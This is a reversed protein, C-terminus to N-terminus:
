TAEEPTANPMRGMSSMFFPAWFYIAKKAEPTRLHNCIAAQLAQEPRAGGALQRHLEPLITAASDDDVAWLAGIVSRVGAQFLVAQLGFLDDGPLESAGPLALARQGSHCASMVVLDARLPLEALSLAELDGDAFCLRSAFPDGQLEAEYVSEGHTALHLCRCAAWDLGTFATRTAQTGILATAAHGRASWAAVVAEAEAEAENLPPLGRGFNNIGVAVTAGAEVGHWPLLLSGLNPVYRISAREILFRGDFRAAHLPLLHLARHPSFVLRQAEAIFARTATPLIAEAVQQVNMQMSNRPMRGSCVQEVHCSLAEKQGDTLIVREAHVRGRDLALVVLVGKAVWVWSVLAEDAALAAQVEALTLAPLGKGAASRMRTIALLSWLRRRHERLADSQEPAAAEIASTAQAVQLALETASQDPPDALRGRLAARSKFLDMVELLSDWRELKFASFAALEYFQTRDALYSGQQFPDSIRYRDAEIARIAGESLDLVREVAKAEAAIRCRCARLMLFVDFLSCDVWRQSAAGGQLLVAEGAEAAADAGELDGCRQRLVAQVRRAQAIPGPQGFREAAAVLADAQGRAEAPPEAADQAIADLATILPMLDLLADLRSDDPGQPAPRLEMTPRLGAEIEAMVPASQALLLRLAAQVQTLTGEIAQAQAPDAKITATHRALLIRMAQDGVRQLLALVANGSRRAAAADVWGAMAAAIPLPGPVPFGAESLAAAAAEAYQRAGHHDNAQSAQASLRGLAAARDLPDPIVDAVRRLDDFSGGDIDARVAFGLWAAKERAVAADDPEGGELYLEGARAYAELAARPQLMQERGRGLAYAASALHFCLLPRQRNSAPTAALTAELRALLAALTDLWQPTIAGPVTHSQAEQLAPGREELLAFLRMEDDTPPPESQLLAPHAARLRTQIAWATMNREFLTRESVPMEGAYARALAQWRAAAQPGNPIALARRQTAMVLALANDLQRPEDTEVASRLIDVLGNVLTEVDLPPGVDSSSRALEPHRAGLREQLSGAVMFREFLPRQAEPM